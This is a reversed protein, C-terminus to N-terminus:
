DVQECAKIRNGIIDENGYDADLQRMAENLGQATPMCHEVMYYPEDELCSLLRWVKEAVSISHNDLVCAKFCSRWKMYNLPDGNFKILKVPPLKPPKIGRPTQSRSNYRFNGSNQNRSHRYENHEDQYEHSNRYHNPTDRYEQHSEYRSQRGQLPEPDQQDLCWPQEYDRHCTDNLRRSEQRNQPDDQDYEQRYYTRYAPPPTLPNQFSNRGRGKSSQNQFRVPTQSRNRDHNSREWEPQMSQRQPHFSKNEFSKRMFSRQNSGQKIREIMESFRAEAAACYGEANSLMVDVSDQAEKLDYMLNKKVHHLREYERILEKFHRQKNEIFEQDVPGQINALEQELRRQDEINEALEADAQRAQSKPSGKLHNDTKRKVNINKPIKLNKPKRIGMVKDKTRPTFNGRSDYNARFDHVTTNRDGQVPSSTSSQQSERNSRRAKQNAKSKKVNVSPDSRQDRIPDCPLDSKRPKHQNSRRSQLNESSSHQDSLNLVNDPGAPKSKDQWTNDVVIADVDIPNPPRKTERKPPEQKRPNKRYAEEEGKFLNGICTSSASPPTVEVRPAQLSGPQPIVPDSTPESHTSQFEQDSEDADAPDRSSRSRSRTRQSNLTNRSGLEEGERLGLGRLERASM